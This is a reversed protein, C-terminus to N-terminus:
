LGYNRWQQLYTQELRKWVDRDQGKQSWNRGASAKIDDAWRKMPRGL